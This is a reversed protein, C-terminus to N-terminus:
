KVVVPFDAEFDTSGPTETGNKTGPQHRLIMRLWGNTSDSTAWSSMLGLPLGKSDKDQIRVAILGSPDINYLMLHYDARAIITDTMNQIPNPAENLLIVQIAYSAKSQLRITDVYSPPNPKSENFNVYVFTDTANTSLNRAIVKLTTISENTSPTAANKCSNLLFAISCGILLSFMIAFIGIRM